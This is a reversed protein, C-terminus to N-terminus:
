PRGMEMYRRPGLAMEPVGQPWISFVIAQRDLSADASYTFGCYIRHYRRILTIDSRLNVNQDFDFQQSFVITYRPDIVYTAAFTFVNTGKEDSVEVRKLYRSGIYYSLNPWVMRSVGINFQQVAGSQMDFYMDSLLATTDSVRWIYDADFYNRKPGFMEFRHLSTDTLDGNFIEPASLVRLPVMPRNWVFRDPGPGSDSASESHNVWTVNMNLAMWDVTRQEDGSGRRTQLRQNLALNLIDHQEVVSSNEEFLVATLQPEVIHRLQELDWLRSKVNPYVKWYQSALRVGGEGIFVKDEGFSGANSGDVLTRTFGSRDDYGFTGAVYPVVKFPDLRLPMDLETRHSVFSFVQENILTSHNEGIKQQMREISSDSYLTFRDDFLSQGTLHYEVGPLEELEDAFDNIRAKGLLSLAWNDQLRKLHVYTERANGVSFEKRYYEELFNEDSWYNIGSTFQWNYPLYQRHQWRVRGRLEQPPQLDRRSSDRGLRDEGSDNILYGSLDGYYDERTYNIDFGTGVGRKGFYDLNFTSDTGQPERLGLLRALYWETEVSAGWINDYGLNIRKLATDPKELNSRMYPWYFITADGLKLRVNQMRADYSKDSSAGGQQDIVTTDVIDVSSAEASIQPKYFESSTLTVNEAAFENEAVQRMKAARVYIPIGRSVDFTRMEANVVVAKKRQFDYYVEDSRITRQGETMVVDGSMYIAEAAGKALINEDGTQEGDVVLQRGSYYIVANDAQLELLRGEEDQKQWLYFRGIVTAIDMGDAMRASEIKPAVKGAGAINVPYVFSPKKAEPKAPKEKHKVEKETVRPERPKKALKKEKAPKEPPPKEAPMGPVLSEPQVVFQPGEPGVLAVAEKYLESERPDAVERKDATVFIEGGVSFKIVEVEGQEVVAQNINTTKAGGAQKTSVNGKLYAKVNYDVRVRGRSEATVSELRVVANDSSFLNAGISMSFGDRFLLIHEGTSIQYSTLQKGTLHLDQGIFSQAKQSEIAPSVSGSFLIGMALIFLQQKKM